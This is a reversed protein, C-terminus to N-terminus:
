WGRIINNTGHMAVSACVSKKQKNKKENKAVCFVSIERKQERNQVFRALLRVCYICFQVRVTSTYMHAHHAHSHAHTFKDLYFHWFTILVTFAFLCMTM